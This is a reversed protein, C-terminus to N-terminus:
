SNKSPNRRSESKISFAEPDRIADVYFSATKETLLKRLHGTPDPVSSSLVCSNKSSPRLAYTEHVTFRTSYVNLYETDIDLHVGNSAFLEIIDEDLRIHLEVKRKDSAIGTLTTKIFSADQAQGPGKGGYTEPLSLRMRVNLAPSDGCNEFECKVHLEPDNAARIIEATPYAMVCPQKSLLMAAQSGSLQDKMVKLQEGTELFYGLTCIVMAASIFLQPGNEASIFPIRLLGIIMLNITVFALGNRWSKAMTNRLLFYILLAIAAYVVLAIRYAHDPNVADPALTVVAQSNNCIFHILGLFLAKIVVLMLAMSFIIERIM